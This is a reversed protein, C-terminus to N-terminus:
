CTITITYLLFLRVQHQKRPRQPNRPQGPGQEQHDDQGVEPSHEDGRRRRHHYRSGSFCILINLNFCKYKTNQLSM